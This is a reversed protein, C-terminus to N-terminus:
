LKTILYITTAISSFTTLTSLWFMFDTIGARIIKTKLPEVYVLDNSQLFFDETRMIDRQTIDVRYTQYGGNEPRIILINRRNGFSTVGGVTAIAEIITIEDQMFYHVGGGGIEGLFIIKIGALRAQVRVDKVVEDVKKQLLTNLENITYGEVKIDGLNPIYVYGTDNVVYGGRMRGGAQMNANMSQQNIAQGANFIERTQENTSLFKIELADQVKIHYEKQKKEYFDIDPARSKTQLYAFRQGTCNCLLVPILILLYLRSFSKM